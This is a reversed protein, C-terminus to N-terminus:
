VEKTMIMVPITNTGGHPGFREQMLQFTNERLKRKEEESIDNKRKKRNPALTDYDPDALKAMDIGMVIDRNDLKKKKKKITKQTAPKPANRKWKSM